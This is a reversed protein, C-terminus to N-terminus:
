IAHVLNIFYFSTPHINAVDVATFMDTIQDHKYKVNLKPCGYMQAM